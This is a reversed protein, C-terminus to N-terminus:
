QRRHGNREPYLDGDGRQRQDREPDGPFSLDVTTEPDDGEVVAAADGVSVTATAGDNDTITVVATASARPLAANTPSSLEVLFTENGEVASDETTQVEVVASTAGAKITVTQATTVATYDTDATAPSADDRTDAATNWKVTVDNISPNSLSITVQAKEGESVATTAVSLAAADNDVITGIVAYRHNLAQSETYSVIGVTFVENVEDLNDETTQVSLTVTDKEGFRVINGVPVHNSTYDSDPDAKTLPPM